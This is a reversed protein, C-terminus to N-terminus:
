NPPRFGVPLTYTTSPTILFEHQEWRGANIAISFAQNNLFNGVCGPTPDATATASMTGWRMSAISSDGYYENDFGVGCGAYQNMGGEFYDSNALMANSDTYDWYSVYISTFGALNPDNNSTNFLWDSQQGDGTLYSGWGHTGSHAQAAEFVTPNTSVDYGQNAPLAGGTCTTNAPSAHSGSGCEFDQQM